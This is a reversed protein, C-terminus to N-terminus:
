IADFAFLSLHSAFCCLTIGVPAIPLIPRSKSLPSCIICLVCSSDTGLVQFLDHWSLIWVLFVNLLFLALM